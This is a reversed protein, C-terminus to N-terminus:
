FWELSTESENISLNSLSSKIIKKIPTTTNSQENIKNLLNIGKNNNNNYEIEGGGFRRFIGGNKKLINGLEIIEGEEMNQQEKVWDDDDASSQFDTGIASDIMIDSNPMQIQLSSNGLSSSAHSSNISIISDVMLGNSNNRDKSEYIKLCQKESMLRSNTGDNTLEWLNQLVIKYATFSPKSEDKPYNILQKTQEYNHLSSYSSSTNAVDDLSSMERLEALCITENNSAKQEKKLEETQSLQELATWICNSKILRCLMKYAVFSGIGVAFAAGSTRTFIAIDMNQTTPISLGLQTVLELQKGGSFIRAELFLPPLLTALANVLKTTNNNKEM